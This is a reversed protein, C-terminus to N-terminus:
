AYRYSKAPTSKHTPIIVNVCGFGPFTIGESRSNSMRVNVQANIWKKPLNNIAM